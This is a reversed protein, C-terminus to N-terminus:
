INILAHAKAMEGDMDDYLVKLGMRDISLAALTSASPPAIHSAGM